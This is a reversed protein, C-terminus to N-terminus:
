VAPAVGELSTALSTFVGLVSSLSSLMRLKKFSSTSSALILRKPLCSVYSSHVKTGLTVSSFAETQERAVLGWHRRPFTFDKPM